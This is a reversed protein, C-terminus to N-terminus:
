GAREWDAPNFWCLPRAGAPVDRGRSRACAGQFPDLDSFPEDAPRKCLLGAMLTDLRCQRGPYGDTLTSPAVAPDPTAFSPRGPAAPDLGDSEFLLRIYALAAAAGRRCVADEEPDAFAGACARAASPPVELGRVAAQNDDAAFYRKLCKSAAFYDAQGESSLPRAGGGGGSALPAGGLHHGLEHCLVLALADPTAGPFRAYAGRNLLRVEWRGAFSGREDFTRAGDHGELPRDLWHNVIVLERGRARAVPGYIGEIRGAVREVRERAVQAGADKPALALTALSAAM